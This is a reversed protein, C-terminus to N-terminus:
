KRLLEKKPNSNEEELNNNSLEKDLLQLNTLVEATNGSLAGALVKGYYKALTPSKAVRYLVKGGDYIGKAGIAAVGSAPSAIGIGIQTAPVSIGFLAKTLPSKMVSGFRKQLFSSIVNSKSATSYAENAAQYPRLFNPNETKGYTELSDIVNSKVQNLNHIAKEKIAPTSSFGFGGLEDVLENIAPRYEYLNIAEIEGNKIDSKLEKMKDLAARTSPRSGGRKMIKELEEIKNPLDGVKVMANEPIAERAENFLKGAYAKGSDGLVKGSLAKRQSILDLGIMLAAKTADQGQEGSGTLKVGEKALNAVLPIGINRLLGYSQSGPIALSAIDQALEGGREEFENKPKTYGLSAKESFTRLDKSTPLKTTPEAGTINSIFSILDGPLGGVTELMRSTIQAQSREIERDINGEDELPSLQQRQVPESRIFPKFGFENDKVPKNVQQNQSAHFPVFGFEDHSLSNSLSM